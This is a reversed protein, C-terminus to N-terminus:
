SVPLVASLFATSTATPTRTSSVPWVSCRTPWSTTASSPSGASLSAAARCFSCSATYSSALLGPGFGWRACYLFIPLMGIDISGGQPLEFLKIFSLVYALAVMIAGECLARLKLHSKTKM